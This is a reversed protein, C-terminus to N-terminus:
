ADPLVTKPRCTSHSHSYDAVEHNSSTPIRGHVSSCYECLKHDCDLCFNSRTKDKVCWFLALPPTITAKLCDASRQPLLQWRPLQVGVPGATFPGSLGSATQVRSLPLPCWATRRCSSIYDNLCQQCFSHLCPITKPCWYDGYKRDIRRGEM